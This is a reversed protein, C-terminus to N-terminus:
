RTISLYVILAEQYNRINFHTHEIFKDIKNIFTNRHMFCKNAALTTNFNTEFYTKVVNIMEQDNFLSKLVYQKLENLYDYSFHNYISSKILDAKDVVLNHFDKFKRFLKLDYQFYAPLNQNILYYDSEFGVIPLLFDSEISQLLQKFEIKKIKNYFIIYVNHYKLFAIHQNFLEQLLSELELIVEADTTKLLKIFYYKLNKAEPLTKSDGFLFPLLNKAERFIKDSTLLEFQSLIMSLENDTLANKEIGFLAENDYIFYYFRTFDYHTIDELYHNQYIKKLTNKM